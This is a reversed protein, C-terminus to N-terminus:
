EVEEICASKREDGSWAPASRGSLHSQASLYAEGRESTDMHMSQMEIIVDYVSGDHAWALCETGKLIREGATLVAQSDDPNDVMELMGRATMRAGAQAEEDDINAQIWVAVDERIGDGDLDQDSVEETNDDSPASGPPACAGCALVGVLIWRGM